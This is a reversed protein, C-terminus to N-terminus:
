HYVASTEFQIKLEYSAYYFLYFTQSKITHILDTRYTFSERDMLLRIYDTYITLVVLIRAFNIVDM